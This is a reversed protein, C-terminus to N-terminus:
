CDWKWLLDQFGMTPNREYQVCVCGCDTGESTINKKDVDKLWFPKSVLQTVTYKVSCIESGILGPAWEPFQDIDLTQQVGEFFM